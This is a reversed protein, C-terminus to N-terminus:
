CLTFDTRRYMGWVPAVLVRQTTGVQLSLSLIMTWSEARGPKENRIEEDGIVEKQVESCGQHRHCHQTGKSLGIDSYTWRSMDKWSAEEM